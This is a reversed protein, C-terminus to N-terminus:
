RTAVEDAEGVEVSQIEGADSNTVYEIGEWAVNGTRKIRTCKFM